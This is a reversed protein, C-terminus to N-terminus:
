AVGCQFRCLTTVPACCLRFEEFGTERTESKNKM